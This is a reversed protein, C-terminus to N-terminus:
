RPARSRIAQAAARALSRVDPPFASGPAAVADLRQADEATGVMGLAAVADLAHTPDPALVLLPAGKTVAAGETAVRRLV